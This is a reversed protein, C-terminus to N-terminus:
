RWSRRQFGFAVDERLRYAYPGHIRHIWVDCSGCLNLSIHKNESHNPGVSAHGLRFDDSRNVRRQVLRRSLRHELISIRGSAAVAPRIRESDLDGDREPEFLQATWM